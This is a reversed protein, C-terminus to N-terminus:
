ENDDKELKLKRKIKRFFGKKSKNLPEKKNKEVLGFYKKLEPLETPVNVSYIMGHNTSKEYQTVMESLTLDCYQDVWDAIFYLREFTILDNESPNEKGYPDYMFAGFLIPDKDRREKEVQKEMEGTYDTFVVYFKDFIGLSKAKLFKEYAPDPIEREYRELEILKIPKKSISEIFKKVDQGYVYIDFGNHLATLEKKAIEFQSVLKRAMTIQGTEKPKRLLYLVNDVLKNLDEETSEHKMSKVYDFYDSPTMLGTDVKNELEKKEEKVGNVKIAM